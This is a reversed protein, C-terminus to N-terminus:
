KVEVESGSGGVYVYEGRNDVCTTSSWEMRLRTMDSINDNKSARRTMLKFETYSGEGGNTVRSGAVQAAEDRCGASVKVKNVVM